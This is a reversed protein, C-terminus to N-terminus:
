APVDPGSPEIPGFDGSADEVDIQDEMLSRESEMRLFTAFECLEPVTVSKDWVPHLWGDPARTLVVLQAVAGSNCRRLLEAAVQFPTKAEGLVVIKEALQRDSDSM